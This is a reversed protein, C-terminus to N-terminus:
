GRACRARTTPRPDISSSRPSPRHSQDRTANLDVEAQRYGRGGALDRHLLDIEEGVSAATDRGSATVRGAAAVGAAASGHARSGASGSWRANRGRSGSSSRQIASVARVRLDARVKKRRSWQLEAGKDLVDEGALRADERRRRGRHRWRPAAAPRGSFGIMWFHQFVPPGQTAARWHARPLLRVLSGPPFSLVSSSIRPRWVCLACVPSEREDNGWTNKTIMVCSRYLQIRSARERALHKGASSRRTLVAHRFASRVLLGFPFQVRVTRRRTRHCAARM